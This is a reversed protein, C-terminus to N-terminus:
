QGGGVEERIQRLDKQFRDDLPPNMKLAADILRVADRAENRMRLRDAENRIPPGVTDQHAGDRRIMEAAFDAAGGYDKAALYAGILSQILPVTVNEGVGAGFYYDLAARFNTVAKAPDQKAYVEGLEVRFNALDKRDDPLPSQELQRCLEELLVALKAPDSRLGQRERNLQAPTARPMMARFADWAKLRVVEDPEFRPQTYELLMGGHEPLNGVRALADLASWRVTPEREARLTRTIVEAANIADAGRVWGLVRLAAQRVAISPDPDPVALLAQALELLNAPQLTALADLTAIRVDAPFKPNMAIGQLRTSVREALAPDARKLDRGVKALAAAAATIVRTSTENTLLTALQTAAAPDEVRGVATALAERVREDREQALQTLEASLAPRHNLSTLTVAVALRVEPDSDGVLAVLRERVAETVPDGNRFARTVLAAAIAREDPQESTLVSLLLASGRGAAAAENYQDLMRRELGVVLADHRRRVRELSALRAALLQARWADRDTAMVGANNQLWTTWRADDAGFNTIGTLEALAEAAAARMPARERVLLVLTRAAEPEVVRGLARAARARADLPFNPDTTFRVIEDVAAQNGRYSALAQAAADVLGLSRQEVGARMAAALPEVMEDSPTPDDAVARAVAIRADRVDGGLVSRLIDDADPRDRSALRAAAQDRDTQRADPQTLVARLAALDGPVDARAASPRTSAPNTTAVPASGPAATATDSTPPPAQAVARAAGSPAAGGVAAAVVIRLITRRRRGM